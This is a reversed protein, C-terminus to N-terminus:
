KSESEFYENIASTITNNIKQMYNKSVLLEHGKEAQGAFGLEILISPITDNKLVIFNAHNETKIKTHTAGTIKRCLIEALKRNSNNLKKSPNIRHNIAEIAFNANAIMYDSANELRALKESEGDSAKGAYSYVEVSSLNPTEIGDAHISIFLAANKRTAAKIRQLLPLFEDTDRTLFVKYKGTKELDIKLNKAYKLTLDKEKIKSDRNVSGYDQGGHGPDLVIIHKQQISKNVIAFNDSVQTVQYPKTAITDGALNNNTNKQAILNTVTENKQSRLDSAAIIINKQIKQINKSLDKLPAFFSNQSHKVLKTIKKRDNQDKIPEFAFWPMNEKKLSTLLGPIESNQIRLNLCKTKNNFQFDEIRAQHSTNIFIITNGSDQKSYIEKILTAGQADKTGFQYSNKLNEFEISLKKAKQNNSIKFDQKETLCITIKTDLDETVADFSSIGSSFCNNTSFILSFIVLFVTKIM